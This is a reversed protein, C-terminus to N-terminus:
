TGGGGIVMGALITISMTTGVSDPSIFQQSYVYFAGAVGCPVASLIFAILKTRYPQIGVSQALEEGAMIAGFQRGLRSYKILWAYGAMLPVLFLGVYYLSMGKPHQTFSLDTLLSIGSGGG